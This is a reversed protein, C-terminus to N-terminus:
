SLLLLNMKCFIILRRSYVSLYKPQGITIAPSVETPIGQHSFGKELFFDSLVRHNRM